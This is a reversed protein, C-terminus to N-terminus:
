EGLFLSEYSSDVFKVLHKHCMVEGLNNCQLFVKDVIRSYLAKTLNYGDTHFPSKGSDVYKFDIAEYNEPYYFGKKIESRLWLCNHLFVMKNFSIIECGKYGRGVLFESSEVYKNDLTRWYGLVHAFADLSAQQISSTDKIEIHEMKTEKNFTRLLGLITIQTLHM